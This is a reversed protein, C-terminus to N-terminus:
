RLKYESKIYNIIKLKNNESNIESQPLSIKTRKIKNSNEDKWEIIYNYLPEDLALENSEDIKTELNNEKLFKFLVDHGSNPNIQKIDFVKIKKNGNIKEGFEILQSKYVNEENLEIILLKDVSKSEFFWFKYITNTKILDTSLFPSFNETYNKFPILVAKYNNQTNCSSLYLTLLFLITHKKM